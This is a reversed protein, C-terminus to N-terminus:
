DVIFRLDTKSLELIKSFQKATIREFGRPASEIDRIIENDILEKLTPRKFFSYAYLFGVIFPRSSKRYNWQDLLEKDSFVSRKRCLSIFHAEDRINKYMEDVIGLTTVVGKHYGGTRYFVITDGKHL